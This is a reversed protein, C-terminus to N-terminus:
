LLDYLGIRYPITLTDETYLWSKIM